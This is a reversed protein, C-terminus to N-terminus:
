LLTHYIATYLRTKEEDTAGSVQIRSLKESWKARLNEQVAQFDWGSLERQLNARAQEISVFSTGVRVQITQGPKFEAYAGRSLEAKADDMGYTKMDVPTQQFQVVFYGKFKPLAFPGLHADMRHPNYGTIERTEPYVSAMGAISPRSAEVIVRAEATKPFTFRLISCRETATMEAQITGDAGADLSVGYFDPRAKESGHSYPLKRSEPSTRLEGVQPIVTVYGYDGMWIAPQHTGIFGSITTDDYNYSTVSIKNQRTQPTLSTLGFPTAVFPMTGGYGITSRQTGILPNVYSVADNKAALCSFSCVTLLALPAAFRNM